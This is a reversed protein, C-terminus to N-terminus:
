FHISKLIQEFQDVTETLSLNSVGGAANKHGGGNFYKKAILNVSIDGVSRLSIYVMDDKERLVAALWVEKLSLAYDVLGETDGSQLDFRKYDEKQIVFYATHFAPLFVLRQSVAFSFFHLRSLSKNDYILQQVSCADVGCEMLDAVIRHTKPTTNPNKFSNTDTILGAYLCTAMSATIKSKQELLSIFLQFAVEASAAAKPDWFFLDAFDEPERHHDIVIKFIDPSELIFALAGLRSSVSFDICFLLDIKGIKELLVEKTYHEAILVDNVGPLWSLFKPYETPTIVDVKHGQEKLYLALALSTGLADADPQAHMVVVIRKPSALQEKLISIDYM